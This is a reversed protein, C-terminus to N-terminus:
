PRPGSMSPKGTSDTTPTCDPSIDAIQQRKFRLTIASINNETAEDIERSIKTRREQYAKMESNMFGGFTPDLEPKGSIRAVYVDLDKSLIKIFKKGLTRSQVNIWGPATLLSESSGLTLLSILHTADKKRNVNGPKISKWAKRALSAKDYSTPARGVLDDEAEEADLDNKDQADFDSQTTMRLVDTNTTNKKLKKLLQQYNKAATDRSALYHKSIDQLDSLPTAIIAAREYSLYHVWHLTKATTALGKVADLLGHAYDTLRLFQPEPIKGEAERAPSIQHVSFSGDKNARKAQFLAIRCLSKTVRLVLAFDAGSSPETTRSNGSKAYRIWNFDPEQDFAKFAWPATAAIAGLLAGTTTEEDNGEFHASAIFDKVAVQFTAMLANKGLRLDFKAGREEIESRIAESRREAELM